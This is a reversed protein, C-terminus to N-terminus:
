DFKPLTLGSQRQYKGSYPKKVPSTLRAFVLHVFREGAYLKVPFASGTIGLTLNGKFGGDVVTPPLTLGCRAYTSRLEVFGMLDPPLELYELTYVLVKEYPRLTFEEGSEIKYFEEPKLRENKTDMVKRKQKLRAIRNGLHLDVGNERITDKKLPNIKLRKKQIYKKLEVDSLIM